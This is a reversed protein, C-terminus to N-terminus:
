RKRSHRKSVIWKDTRKNKRTRYGKAPQGWPSVPIKNSKSRGEGGGMPHDVPNMVMGRVHPRRGRWRTAGAKGLKRLFHEENGVAGVVARCNARVKRTEGSKLRLMAYDGDLAVFQASIGASRAIQAGRGPTLEICHVTVGVPIAALPKANGARIPAAPGSEIKDGAKVGQPALIYRREGDAYLLLALHASRNPDYELREVTAPVGDKDRRFDVVRYRQRHGGGRHWSTIRGHNNRGATKTKKRLLPEYPEGKHLDPTKVRVMGRQGPTQPKSKVLVM